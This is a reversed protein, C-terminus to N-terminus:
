KRKAPKMGRSHAPHRHKVPHQGKKQLRQEPISNRVELGNKNGGEFIQSLFESDGYKNFVLETRAPETADVSPLVPLWASHRGDNSTIQVLAQGADDLPKIVYRGSPFTTNGATFAFPIDADIPGTIQAYAAVQMVVFSSAAALIFRLSSLKM